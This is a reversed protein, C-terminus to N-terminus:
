PDHPKLADLQARLSKLARHLASAIAAPTTELSQAIQQLSLGDWYRMLVATRQLQPLSEVASAVIRAHEQRMALQSPASEVDILFTELRLSSAEVAAEISQERSIDRKQSHLDRSAHAIARALIAKLWAALEAETQGRFSGWARHAQLMTQQVVDSSELKCHPASGLQSRALICLYDRFHEIREELRPSPEM